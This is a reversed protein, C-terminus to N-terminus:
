SACFQVHTAASAAPRSAVLSAANQSHSAPSAPSAGARCTGTIKSICTTTSPKFSAPAPTHQMSPIIGRFTDSLSAIAGLLSRNQTQIDAFMNLFSATADHEPRQALPKPLIGLGLNAYAPQPTNHYDM